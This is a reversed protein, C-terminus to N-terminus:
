LGRDPFHTKGWKTRVFQHKANRNENAIRELLANRVFVSQRGLDLVPVSRIRRRLRNDRLLAPYM